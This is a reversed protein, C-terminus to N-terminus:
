SGSKRHFYDSYTGEIKREETKVLAVKAKFHISFYAPVQVKEFGQQGYALQLKELKGLIGLGFRVNDLLRAEAKVINFEDDVWFTGTVHNMVKETRSRQSLKGVKPRFSFVYKGQSDPPLMQFDYKAYLDAWSLQDDDDEELVDNKKNVSKLFKARREKEEKLEKSSLGKGNVKVLELYPYENLWTMRFTRIKKESVKGDRIKTSTVNQQFGIRRALEQNQKAKEVIRDLIERQDLEQEAFVAPLFAATLFIILVAAYNRDM